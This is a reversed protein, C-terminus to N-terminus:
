LDGIEARLHNRFGLPPHHINGAVCFGIMAGVADHLMKWEAWGMGPRLMGNSKQILFEREM